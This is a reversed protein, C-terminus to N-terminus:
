RWRRYLWVGGIVIVLLAVLTGGTPLDTVRECHVLRLSCEADSM